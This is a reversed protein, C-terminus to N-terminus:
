VRFRLSRILGAAPTPGNVVGDLTNIAATFSGFGPAVKRVSRESHCYSCVGSVKEVLSSFRGVVQYVTETFVLSSATNNNEKKQAVVCSGPIKSRREWKINRRKSRRKVNM